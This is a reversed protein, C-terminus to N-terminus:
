ETRFYVPYLILCKSNDVFQTQAIILPNSKLLLNILSNSKLLLNIGEEVGSFISGLVKPIDPPEMNRDIFLSKDVFQKQAILKNM